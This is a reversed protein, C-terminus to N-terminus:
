KKFILAFHYKGPLFDHILELGLDEIYSKLSLKDVRTEPGLPAAIKLWDIILLKGGPGLIRHSEKIINDPNLSQHLLNAIIVADLSSSDIGTSNHKELDTWITEINQLNHEQSERAIYDLNDKLIDISYVKGTLGAHKAAWFTFIGTRGSGFDAIKDKQSLGLKDSLLNLDLLNTSYKYGIM